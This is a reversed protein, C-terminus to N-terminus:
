LLGDSRLARMVEDALSNLDQGSNTFVRDALARGQAIEAEFGSLRTGVETDGRAEVSARAFEPSAELQYVVTGPYYERLRAVFPARVMVVVLLGTEAELPAMGYRHPLGFPQVVEAFTGAAALKDFTAVDVFRHELESEGSRRPRDTWTPTVQILGRRALEALLASKGCGSPGIFALPRSSTPDIRM